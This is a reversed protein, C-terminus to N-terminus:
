GQKGAQEAWGERLPVFYYFQYRRSRFKWEGRVKVYEDDYYGAGIWSQGDRTARVEQYCVGSAREPGHLAIVHNHIFPRPTLNGLTETYAKLLNDRGHAELLGSDGTTISGDDTFLSVIGEVDNRWVYHCYRVPLDRIAERNLLEQILTEVSKNAM